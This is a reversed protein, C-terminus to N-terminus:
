VLGGAFQLLFVEDKVEPAPLCSRIASQLMRQMNLMPRFLRIKNDVGRYAKLGEFLEVSYHLASVAPHLSLNQLPKIQPREWGRAATWQIMLMHDSFSTGFVLQNPDPKKASTQAM